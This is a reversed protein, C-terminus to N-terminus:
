RERGEGHHRQFRQIMELTLLNEWEETLEDRGHDCDLHRSDEISFRLMTVGGLLVAVRQYERTLDEDGSEKMRHVDRLVLKM